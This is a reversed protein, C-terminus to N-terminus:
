LSMGRQADKQMRAHQLSQAHHPVGHSLAIDREQARALEELRTVAHRASLVGNDMFGVTIQGDICQPIFGGSVGIGNMALRDFSRSTALLPRMQGSKPSAYGPCFVMKVTSLDFMENATMGYKKAVREMCEIMMATNGKKHLTEGGMLFEMTGPQTNYAQSGNELYMCESKLKEMAEPRIEVFGKHSMTHQLTLLTQQDEPSLGLADLGNIRALATSPLAFVVHDFEQSGDPLGLALKDGNKSVGAVKNRCHFEVRDKLREKLADILKETGGEIRYACDSAMLSGTKPNMDASAESVFNMASVDDRGGESTRTQAAMHLIEPDIANPNKWGFIFKTMRKWLPLPPGEQEARAALSKLYEHSSFNPTDLEKARTCDPDAAIAKKDEQIYKVIPQLKTLLEESSIEKGNSLLYTSRKQEEANIYKVGLKDCLALLPSDSDIFEAGNNRGEESTEILGGLRDSGEYLVVQNGKEVEELASILGSIGGGVVAVRKKPQSLAQADPQKTDISM